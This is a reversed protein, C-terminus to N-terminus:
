RRSIHMQGIRGVTVVRVSIKIRRCIQSASRGLLVPRRAASAIGFERIIGQPPPARAPSEGMSSSNRRTGSVQNNHGSPVPVCDLTDSSFGGARTTTISAVHLWARRNYLLMGTRLVSGRNTKGAGIRHLSRNRSCCRESPIDVISAIAAAM